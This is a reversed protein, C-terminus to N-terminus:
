PHCGNSRRHDQLIRDPFSLTAQFQASLIEGSRLSKNHAQLELAEALQQETIYEERVLYEGIRM